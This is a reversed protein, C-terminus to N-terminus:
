GTKIKTAKATSIDLSMGTTPPSPPGTAATPHVHLNLATIFTQLATNLEAHTVFDKSNGNLEIVSGNWKIINSNWDKITMTKATENIEILFDTDPQTITLIGTDKDYVQKWGFENIKTIKREQGSKLFEKKQETGTTGLIEFRSGIVVAEEILNSPFMILVETDKPPLDQEGFPTTSNYGAWKKSLITVRRLLLGNSLQVDVTNDESHAETVLAWISAMNGRNKLEENRLKASQPTTKPKSRNKINIKM